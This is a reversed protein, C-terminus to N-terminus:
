GEEVWDPIRYDTFNFYEVMKTNIEIVNERPDSNLLAPIATDYAVYVKMGAGIRLMDDRTEIRDDYYVQMLMARLVSCYSITLLYGVLLWMFVLYKRARSCSNQSIYNGKDHHGQAEDFIAGLAFLVASIHQFM